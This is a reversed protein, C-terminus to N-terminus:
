DLDSDDEDDGEEDEDGSDEEGGEPMPVSILAAKKPKTPKNADLKARLAKLHNVLGMVDFKALYENFVSVKDTALVWAHTNKGRVYGHALKIDAAATDPGIAETLFASIVGPHIGRREIKIVYKTTDILGNNLFAEIQFPHQTAM